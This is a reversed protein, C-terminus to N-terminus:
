MDLYKCRRGSLGSCTFRGVSGLDTGAPSPGAEEDRKREDERGEGSQGGGGGEEGGRRM